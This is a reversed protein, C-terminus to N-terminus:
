LPAVHLSHAMDPVATTIITADLQEMPFAIVVILPILLRLKPSRLAAFEAPNPEIDM